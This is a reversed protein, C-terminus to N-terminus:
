ETCTFGYVRAGCCIVMCSARSPVEAVPFPLWPFYPVVAFMNLYVHQSCPSLEALAIISNHLMKCVIYDQRGRPMTM